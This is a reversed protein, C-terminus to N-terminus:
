GFLESEDEAFAMRGVDKLEQSIVPLVIGLPDIPCM